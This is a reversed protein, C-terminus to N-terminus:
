NCGFSRFGLNRTLEGNRLYEFTESDINYGKREIYFKYSFLGFGEQINSYPDAPFLGGILNENANRARVYEYLEPGAADVRADIQVACRRVNSGNGIVDSLNGALFKYFNEGNLEQAVSGGNAKLFYYFKEDNQFPTTIRVEGQAQFNKVAKWALEKYVRTGPLEPEGAVNVDVQFEAYRLKVTLDYIAANTPQSWNFTVKSFENNGTVPNTFSWRIPRSQAPLTFRFLSFTNDTSNYQGMTIGRCFQTFVKGSVNNKIVLKYFRDVDSGRPRNRMVYIYNPSQAFIGSDRVIGITSADIRELTDLVTYPGTPTREYIVVELDNPGYYLSDPRRAVVFADTEPDLFAKEIRFYNDDSEPLPSFVAYVVPIEKWNGIVDVENSCAALACVIAFASFAKHFFNTIKM